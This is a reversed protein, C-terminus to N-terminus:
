NYKITSYYKTNTAIATLYPAPDGGLLGPNSERSRISLVNILKSQGSSDKPLCTFGDTGLNLPLSSKVTRVDDQRLARGKKSLVQM